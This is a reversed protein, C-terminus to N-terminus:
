FLLFVTPKDDLSAPLTTKKWASVTRTMVLQDKGCLSSAICLLTPDPLNQTLFELLKMTRYPTEIFIHTKKEKLITKIQLSLEEPRRKFYGHFTFTQAPLGSLQLGML